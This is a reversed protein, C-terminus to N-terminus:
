EFFELIDKVNDIIKDAGYENLEAYDRFGWLVGVNLGAKIAKGFQMDTKTDGLYVIEEPKLGLKEITYEGMAAHPKLPFNEGSGMAMDFIGPFFREVVPAVASHQKNSIVALKVGKNKLTMLVENMGPFAKTLYFPEADYISKYHAYYKEFTEDNYVGNVLLARKTLNVPGEGALYNVSSEEVCPLDLDSLAKNVYYAITHITDLITGDLDCLLAKYM